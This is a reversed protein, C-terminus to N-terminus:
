HFRGRSFFRKSGFRNFRDFRNFSRFGLGYSSRGFHGFSRHRNFRNISNFRGSHHGRSHYAIGRKDNSAEPKWEKSEIANVVPILTSKPGNVLTKSGAVEGYVTVYKRILTQKHDEVQVIFRGNVFNKDSWPLPRGDESLPHAFVTLETLDGVKKTNVIEGGWRVKLGLNEKINRSVEEYSTDISPAIRIENAISSRPTTTACASLSLAVCLLSFAKSFKSISHYM